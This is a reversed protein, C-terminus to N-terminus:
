KGLKREIKIVKWLVLAAIGMMTAHYEPHSQGLFIRLISPTVGATAKSSKSNTRGM